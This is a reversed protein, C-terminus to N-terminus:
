HVNTGLAALPAALVLVNKVWQRPRMAKIVGVVLNPRATAPGTAPAEDKIDESM